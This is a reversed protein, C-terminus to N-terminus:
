SSIARSPFRRLTSAMTSFECKSDDCTSAADVSLTLIPASAVLVYDIAFLKM